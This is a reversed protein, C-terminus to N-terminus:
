NVLTAGFRSCLLIFCHQYKPKRADAVASIVQLFVTKAKDAVVGRHSEHPISLNEERGLFLTERAVLV